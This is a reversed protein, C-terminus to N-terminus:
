TMDSDHRFRAIHRGATLYGRETLTIIARKLSMPDLPIMGSLRDLTMAGRDLQLAVLLESDSLLYSVLALQVSLKLEADPSPLCGSCRGSQRGSRM